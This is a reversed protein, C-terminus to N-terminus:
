LKQPECLNEKNHAQAGCNDCKYRPDVTLKKFKAADKKDCGDTKMACMHMKHSKSKCSQKTVM